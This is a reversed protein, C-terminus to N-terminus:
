YTSGTNAVVIIISTMLAFSSFMFGDIIRLDESTLNDNIKEGLLASTKVLPNQVPSPFCSM